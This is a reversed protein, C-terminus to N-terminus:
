ARENRAVDACIARHVHPLAEFARPYRLTAVPAREVIAEFFEMELKLLHASTPDLRYAHRALAVVADRKTIPEIEIEAGQGLLYISGLPLAEIAHPMDLMAKGLAHSMPHSPAIRHRSDEWLRVVTEVPSSLVKTEAISLRVCDDGLIPFRGALSAVLTSKGAGSDGLFVVSETGLAVAGGHFSPIGRLQGLYPAVRFRFFADVVEEPAEAAVRRRM